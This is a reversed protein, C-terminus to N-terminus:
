LRIVKGTAASEYGAALVAVSQAAMEANMECEEGSEICDVFSPIERQQEGSGDDVSIWLQKPQLGTKARTSGWAGMPDLPHPPPPKFAPEDAFVELHSKGADLVLAGRTGVLHLRKMGSQPHSMWGVRGGAISATIGDELMLVLSGFDEIDCEVHEKFFYNGTKGFVTKVAKKTLWNIMAIPYVGVASLEPKAKVFCYRELPAKQERKQGVPASGAHGKAFLLDCHIARLEGIDGSELARKATQGWSSLINSYMQSRVNAKKIAAVVANADEPRIAMPKDLYLHKGMEACRVAVRARREQEVCICVIHVDDRALAEDLDPLYPLGMEKAFSKGLEIRELPADLEDSFAVLRCRPEAAFYRGYMEQHTRYGGLLLVGYKEQNM